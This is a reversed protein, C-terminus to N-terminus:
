VDNVGFRYSHTQEESCLPRYKSNHKYDPQKPAGNIEMTPFVFVQGLVARNGLNKLIDEKTNLLVFVHM